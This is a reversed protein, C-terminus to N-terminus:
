SDYIGISKQLKTLDKMSQSKSQKKHDFDSGLVQKHSKYKSDIKTPNSTNLVSTVPSKTIPPKPISM